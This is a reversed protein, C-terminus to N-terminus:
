TVVAPEGTYRIRMRGSGGNGGAAGAGATTGASGGAGAGGGGAGSNPDASNGASGAVGTVAAANGGNGGSAGYGFPGGGGSGGGAGGIKLTSNTGDTGAGFGSFGQPSQAGGPNQNVGKTGGQGGQQPIPIIAPITTAYTQIHKGIYTSVDNTTPMGGHVLVAANQPTAVGFGGAAGSCYVGDGVLYAGSTNFFSPSGAAGSTSGAASGTGGAGVVANYLTGPTVQFSQTSLVAGGGGSGSVGPTSDATSGASSGCGGGGGGCGEITVLYCNAPCTWTGTVLFEDIQQVNRLALFQTRDALVELAVNVSAADLADGDSPITFQPTLSQDSVTGGSVYAGSGVSGNLQFHTSDVVTIQWTGNAATNGTVGNVVVTDFTAFQHAVTTQIVIPTANTAGNVTRTLSSSVALPDGTYVTSM